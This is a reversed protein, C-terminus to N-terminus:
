LKLWSWPLLNYSWWEQSFWQWIFSIVFQSQGFACYVPISFSVEFKHIHLCSQPVTATPGDIQKILKQWKRTTEQWPRQGLLSQHTIKPILNTHGTSNGCGFYFLFYNRLKKIWLFKLIRYSKRWLGFHWLVFGTCGEKILAKRHFWSFLQLAWPELSRM